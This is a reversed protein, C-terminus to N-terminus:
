IHLKDKRLCCVIELEEGEDLGVKRRILWSGFGFGFESM